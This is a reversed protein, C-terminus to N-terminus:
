ALIRMFRIARTDNLAPLLMNAWKHPSIVSSCLLFNSRYIRDYKQLIPSWSLQLKQTFSLSKVNCLSRQTLIGTPNISQFTRCSLVLANRYSIWIKLVKDIPMRGSMQTGPFRLRWVSTFTFGVLWLLEKISKFTIKISTMWSKTPGLKSLGIGGEIKWASIFYYTLYGIENM